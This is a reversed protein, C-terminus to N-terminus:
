WRVKLVLNAAEDDTTIMDLFGFCCDEDTDVDRVRRWPVYNSRAQGACM